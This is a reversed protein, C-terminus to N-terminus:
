FEGARIKPLWVDRMQKFNFPPNGCLCHNKGKTGDALTWKLLLLRQTAACVRVAELVKSQNAELTFEGQSFLEHSDADRIEYKGQRPQLSDNVAVVQQRWGAPETLLVIVDQQVRRIYYYALKKVLYYDVVADSFQPWCDLLNWWLIGSMKPKSRMLELFYKKAEAQVIQSAQVFDEVKEPITGFMERVQEAMMETRWNQLDDDPLYPNSAHYNWEDNDQWPWLKEPSLFKRMSELSPCGHYGVESCFSAQSARYFDSKFYDRAGWLHQEPTLYVLQVCDSLESAAQVAAPSAWPSSPLYPRRPDLVRLVEPLIVRTLRNRNPDLGACFHVVDCENDGSWLALCPHQRLRLVVQEAEQRLQEAFDDDQPYVSCAMMFDQWVLIGRRDCQDYFEDSEYVGGGWVRLMNCNLDEAMDLFAQLREHDRSHLADLPVHNCGHIRIAQRNLLFQFEPQDSGSALEEAKLSLLRLGTSFEKEALLEQGQWLRVKVTYLNAAGYGKPWWLQLEPIRLKLSAWTAWCNQEGRFHSEGCHGEVTLRLNRLVPLSSAFRVFLTAQGETGSFDQLQLYTDLIRHPPIEQLYVPRFLGGLSMRPAIDWGTLHAPRRLRVQGFHAHWSSFYEVDVPMERLANCCSRLHIELVNKGKQLREGVAYRHCLFANRCEGLPQGNLVIEGLCDVGELVLELNRKRGDYEFERRYHWSYFELERLQMAHLRIYPDDVLGARHLSLEINEPVQATLPGTSEGQGNELTGCLQWEGGLNLNYIHNM